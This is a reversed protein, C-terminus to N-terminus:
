YEAHVVLDAAVQSPTVAGASRHVEKGQSLYVLTPTSQIAYASVLAEAQEAHVALIRWTTDHEDALRELHPKLTRCPQCWTGWFELVVDREEALLVEALETTTTIQDISM